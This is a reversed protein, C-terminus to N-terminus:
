RPSDLPLGLSALLTPWRPDDRLASLLPNGLLASLGPDRQQRARELWEFAAEVRGEFAFLEALQFAARAGDESIM